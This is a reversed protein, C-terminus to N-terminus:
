ECLQNIHLIIYLVYKEKKMSTMCDPEDREGSARESGGAPFPKSIYM